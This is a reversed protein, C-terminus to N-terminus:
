VRKLKEERKRMTSIYSMINQRNASTSNFDDQDHAKKEEEEALGQPYGSGTPGSVTNRAKTLSSNTAKEAAAILKQTEEQVKRLMENGTSQRKSGFGATMSAGDAAAKPRREASAKNNTRGQLTAQIRNAAEIHEQLRVTRTTNACESANPPYENDNSSASRQHDSSGRSDSNSQNM